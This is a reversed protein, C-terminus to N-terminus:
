EGVALKRIVLENQHVEIDIHEGVGFGAEALWKANLNIQPKSMRQGNEGCYDGYGGVTLYRHGKAEGPAAPVIEVEETVTTTTKKSILKAM